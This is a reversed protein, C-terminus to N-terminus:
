SIEWPLRYPIVSDPISDPIEEPKYEFRTDEVTPKVMKKPLILKKEGLREEEIRDLCYCQSEKIIIGDDYGAAYRCYSRCEVTRIDMATFCTIAFLLRKM